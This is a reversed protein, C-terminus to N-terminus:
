MARRARRWGSRQTWARGRVTPVRSTRAGAGSPASSMRGREDPPEDESERREHEHVEGTAVQHRAHKDGDREDHTGRRVIRAGSAPRATPRHAARRQEDRDLEEQAGLDEDDKDYASEAPM